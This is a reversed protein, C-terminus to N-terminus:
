YPFVTEVEHINVIYDFIRSKLNTKLSISFPIYSNFPKDNIPSSIIGCISQRFKLIATIVSGLRSM